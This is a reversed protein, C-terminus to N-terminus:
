AFGEDVQNVALIILIIHGQVVQHLKHLSWIEGGSTQNHARLPNLAGIGSALAPHHHPSIRENLINRIPGAPLTDADGFDGELDVLGSENLAHGLQHVLADQVVDGVDTVFRIASADGQDYFELAAGLGELYE